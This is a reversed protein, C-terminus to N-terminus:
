SWPQLLTVLAERGPLMGRGKDGAIRQPVSRVMGQRTHLVQLLEHLYPRQVHPVPADEANRRQKVGLPQMCQGALVARDARNQVRPSVSTPCFECLM